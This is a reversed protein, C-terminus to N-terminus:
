PSAAVGPADRAAHGCHLSPAVAAASVHWLRCQRSDGQSSATTFGGLDLISLWAAACAALGDYAADFRAACLRQLLM